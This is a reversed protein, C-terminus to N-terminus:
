KKKAPAGGDKAAEAKQFKPEDATAFDCTWSGMIFIGPTGDKMAYHSTGASVKGVIIKPTGANDKLTLAITAEPKDFGADAASKDDAFDEATLSKYARLLDKVREPEFNPIPQGKFTGSWKDDNKSFSFKGHSNEIAVQVVNADEFKLIDRDRWDKVDRAYLYSAYGSSVFVGDKSVVRTMQGRTGSKGFMLDVAKDVGKWALLEVAKGEELDYTPYFTKGPDIVDKVKLEKLNDLMSKVNASNAPAAVPKVVKWKDGDKELVM